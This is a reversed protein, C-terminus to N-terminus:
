WDRPPRAEFLKAPNPPADASKGLAIRRALEGLSADDPALRLAHSVASRAGESRDPASRMTADALAAWAEPSRAGHAAAAELARRADDFRQHAALIMGRAVWVGAFEPWARQTDEIRRLADDTRGSLELVAAEILPIAPDAPLTKAAQDLMLLAEPARENRSLFIAKQWYLDARAPDARIAEDLAPLAENPKGSADLMQARALYYDANRSAEPARDLRKLGEEAAEKLAEATGGPAHFTAIALDVDVGASPGSAAAGTLLEKASAYQKAELLARGDDALVASSPKLGAILHATAAARDIQNEELLLKLYHSQAAPDGPNDAIAKEVRARYDARQQEPTLSLFRMLDVPGQAPRAQRYRELLAESDATEGAEALANALHLLVTPEGPLDAAKRLVRIADPLRDLALYTQGLRDLVASDQTEGAVAELDPLAAEPKGQKYYLSGRVARAAPFGPKLALARDLSAIGQTPDSASQAVGLQFYGMADDPHRAVYWELDALGAEFKGQHIAAFGRERRAEDDNPALKAYRDWAAAADEWAGLENATVALLRQVDARGPALKAAQALWRIASEPQRLASEVFALSYLVDVNDPQERAATELVDRARENHGAYLAVVGLDYLVHFDSPDAAHAHTLFTEAQDYQGAQALTWGISSGLAADEEAMQALRTFLADAERRSAPISDLAILREVAAEPADRQGPAIRDLYSLALAPNKQQLASQALQLNALSNGPDLALAQQIAERAGKVDGTALLHQAYRAVITADKPAAAMARRHEADAEAPKKRGDLAMGLLSHAEANAPHTKLEARVADEAAAFDERRLAANAQQLAANGAPKAPAKATAQAMLCAPLFFLPQFILWLFILPLFPSLKHIALRIM